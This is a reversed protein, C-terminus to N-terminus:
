YDPTLHTLIYRYLYDKNEISLLKTSWKTKKGINVTLKQITIIYM